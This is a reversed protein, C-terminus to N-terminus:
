AKPGRAMEQEREFQDIGSILAFILWCNAMKEREDCNPFSLDHKRKHCPLSAIIIQYDSIKQYFVVVFSLKQNVSCTKLFFGNSFLLVLAVPFGAKRDWNQPYGAKETGFSDWNQRLVM